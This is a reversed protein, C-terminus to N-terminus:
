PTPQPSALLVPQSASRLAPELIPEANGSIRDPFGEANEFFGAEELENALSL